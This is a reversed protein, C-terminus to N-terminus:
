DPSEMRAVGIPSTINVMAEIYSTFSAQISTRRTVALADYKGLHSVETM